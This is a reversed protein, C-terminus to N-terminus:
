LSRTGTKRVRMKHVKAKPGGDVRMTRRGSRALALRNERRLAAAEERNVASAMYEQVDDLSPKSRMRMGVLCGAGFGVLLAFIAALVVTWM